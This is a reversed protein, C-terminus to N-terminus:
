ACIEVTLRFAADGGVRLYAAVGEFYQQKAHVTSAASPSTALSATEVVAV